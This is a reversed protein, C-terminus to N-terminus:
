LGVKPLAYAIEDATFGEETLQKTMIDVKTAGYARKEKAIAFCMAKWDIDSNDLAYQAQEKTFGDYLLQDTLSVRSYASLKLYKEAKKVAQENWNAGCADAGYAADAKSCGEFTVLMEILKERSFPMEGIYGAAKLRALMEKQTEDPYPEVPATTEVPMTTEDPSTTDAPKTTDTPKTTDAPTSTEAPKTTEAPTTAKPTTEPRLTFVPDTNEPTNGCAVLLVTVTVILLFAIIKKM